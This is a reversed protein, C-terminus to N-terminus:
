SLLAPNRAKKEGGEQDELPARNKKEALQQRLEGRRAPGLNPHLATKEEGRRVLAFTGPEKKKKGKRGIIERSALSMESKEPIQLTFSVAGKGKGGKEGGLLV